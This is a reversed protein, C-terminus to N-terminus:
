SVIRQLDNTKLPFSNPYHRRCHFSISKDIGAKATMRKLARDANCLLPIHTFVRDDLSATGREPMWELAQKGLPIVASKKTKQMSQVYVQLGDETERIDRWYLQLLDSHRLGTFCCFMFTQKTIPSGTEVESMRKLEEVTLYDRDSPTKVFTERKELEYFPHKQLVGQEVAYKLMSNVDTQILLMTKPSLPKPRNLSKMNRYVDKVYTLFNKYFSKDVKDMMLSPRNIHTLYSKVINVTSRMHKQYALSYRDGKQLHLLYEDMWKSFEATPTSVAKGEPKSCIGLIRESKIKLAKKLTAENVRRDNDTKEPILYLNLSEYQRRGGKEYFELYLTTNGSKHKRSRLEIKM